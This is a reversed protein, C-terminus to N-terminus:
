AAHHSRMGRMILAVIVDGSPEFRVYLVVIREGSSVGKELRPQFQGNM